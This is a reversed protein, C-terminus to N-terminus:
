VKPIKIVQKLLQVVSFAERVKTSMGYDIPPRPLPFAPSPTQVSNVKFANLNRLSHFDWLKGWVRGM